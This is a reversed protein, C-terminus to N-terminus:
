SAREEVALLEGRSVVVCRGGLVVRDGALEVELDGRRKSLQVARMSTKGLKESWYPALVCHASGTVPDEAVGLWPAFFRSVFDVDSRGRASLIVGKVDHDNKAALLKAADVDARRVEDETEVVVLLKRAKTAGLRVDIPRVGLADVIPKADISRNDYAPLSMSFGGDDRRDVHLAGSATEFTVRSSRVRGEAFLVAGTALTAHGCLPVENTPTFWRLAHHDETTKAAFATESLNMEAAVSQMWEPTRARDLLVVAAPNGSFPARTFADVVFLPLTM